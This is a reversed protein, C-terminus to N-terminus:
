FLQITKIKLCTKHGSSSIYGWLVKIISFNPTSDVFNFPCMILPQKHWTCKTVQLKLLCSWEETMLGDWWHCFVWIKWHSLCLALHFLKCWHYWYLTPCSLYYIIYWPPLSCQCTLWLCSQLTQIRTVLGTIGLTCTVAFTLLWLCNLKTYLERLTM